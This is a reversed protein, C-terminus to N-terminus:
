LVFFILFIMFTHNLILINFYKGAMLSKFFNKGETTKSVQYFIQEVLESDVMGANESRKLPQM